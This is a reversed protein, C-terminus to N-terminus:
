FTAAALALTHLKRAMKGGTTLRANAADQCGLGDLGRAGPRWGQVRRRRPGCWIRRWLRAM